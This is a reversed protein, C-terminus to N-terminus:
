LPLYPVWRKADWLVVKGPARKGESDFGGVSGALYKDDPTCAVGSVYGEGVPLKRLVTGLNADWVRVTGDWAGSVLRKGDPSYVAAAVKNTHGQATVSRSDVTQLIDMDGAHTGYALRRGDPSFAVCATGPSDILLLEEGSSADFVRLNRGRLTRDKGTVVSGTAIRRGDPSFAVSHVGDELGALDFLLPGKASDWVKVEGPVKTDGSTDNESCGSVLRRGDPSYALCTVDITHGELTRLEKKAQLDWIRVTRDWGGSALYQGDPSFAVCMIKNRHGDFKHVLKGNSADWIRLKGPGPETLSGEGGATAILRGDPSFAVGCVIGTDGKIVCLEQKLDSGWLKVEGPMPQGNEGVRFTGVAIRQGDRSLAVCQVRSGSMNRAVLEQRTAADWVRVTGDSGGSVLRKGDPSFALGVVTGGHKNLWVQRKEGQALEWIWATGGARGIAMCKGDPSFSLGTVAGTDYMKPVVDKKGLTDWLIVREQDCSALSKGDPSFAVAWVASSLRQRFALTKQDVDLVVVSGDKSGSAVRKGDGDLAVSYVVSQHGDFSCIAPGGEVADWVKVMADGGGSALRKGDGSFAVSWVEAKHGELTQLLQLTAVDWVKVMADGGSALWKSDPSFALSRVWSKHATLEHLLEGTGADWVKLKGDKGGSALRKGDLSYALGTVGGKHGLFTLGRRGRRTDWVSFSGDPSSMALTDGGQSFGSMVAYFEDRPQTLSLLYSSEFGWMDWPVRDLIQLANQPQKLQVNLKAESLQSRYRRWREAQAIETQKQAIEEAHDKEQKALSLARNNKEELLKKEQDARQQSAQVWFLMAVGSLAIVLVSGILIANKARRALRVRERADSLERDKRENENARCRRIFSAEHQTLRPPRAALLTEAEELVVGRLMLYDPNAQSKYYTDSSTRVRGVLRAAQEAQRIWTKLQDWHRILAEHAVEVETAQTLPNLTTILLKADALQTVVIKTLNADGGEPTLQSLEERRRTDRRVEADTTETDIRVLREFLFPCLEQEARPLKGYIEDATRSIAGKVGGVRSADLYESFSLRRGRRYRWLQRLCHQLLPMAGPEHELDEFIRKALEPEFQLGVAKRQLEVVERLEDGRLPQLLELHKENANLLSHLEDHEAFEGLFDTRMTIVVPCQERLPLLEALFDQRAVTDTCLTFLEELQDVVLIDPAPMGEREQRLRGVPDKGPPFLVARLDPKERRLQELVGARVLSSKGTGSGGLVALFRHERLLACVKKTLQTRGFFFPRFDEAEGQDNKVVDFVGLGPFPCRIDYEPLRLPLDRALTDFSQELFDECLENLHPQLNVQLEDRAWTAESDIGLNNETRKRIELAARARCALEEFGLHLAPAREGVLPGLRELGKEWEGITLPGFEDFLKRGGVRSFLSPILIDGRDAIGACAEDLALDAYGHQRLRTYFEGALQVALPLGIPETMAVVAPMGLERVLRQGLGGLGQEAWPSASDCSCLFTLHPLTKAGQLQELREILATASVREIHDDPKELNLPGSKRLFLFTEDLRNEKEDGKAHKGHCVIHLIPFRDATLCRSLEGLTPLGDAGPLQEGADSALVTCPIEKGLAKRISEVVPGAQFEKLGYPDGPGLNAVVVLAKLEVRSTTPYRKDIESPLHISFPTRQQLRLFKWGKGLRACLREWRVARLREVEVSLLVHLLQGDADARAQIREFTSVIEGHFVAEGIVQGYQRLDEATLAFEDPLNAPDLALAEEVRVGGTLGPESTEAVVRLDLGVQRVTLTITYM